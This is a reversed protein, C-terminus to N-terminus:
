QHAAQFRSRANRKFLNELPLEVGIDGGTITASFL